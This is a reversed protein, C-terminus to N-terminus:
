GEGTAGVSWPTLPVKARVAAIGWKNNEKTAVITYLQNLPTVIKGDASRVGQLTSTGDIIAVDQRIFRISTVTATLKSSKYLTPLADRWYMELDKASAVICGGKGRVDADPHFFAAMKGSDGKDWAECFANVSEQVNIEIETTREM